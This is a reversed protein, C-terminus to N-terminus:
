FVPIDEDKSMDYTDDQPTDTRPGLLQVSQVDCVLETRQVGDRGTYDNRSLEGSAGVLQGKKLWGVIKEGREGWQQIRIYTTKRYQGYGINVAVDADLVKKGSPLTRMCADKTLRGTFTYSSLDSM